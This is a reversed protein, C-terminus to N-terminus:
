TIEAVDGEVNGLGAKSGNNSGSGSNSHGRVESGLLIPRCNIGYFKRQNNAALQAAMEDYYVMMGPFSYHADVPPVPRNNLHANKHDQYVLVWYTPKNTNEQQEM